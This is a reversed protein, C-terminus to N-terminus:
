GNRALVLAVQAAVDCPREDVDFWGYRLPHEGRVVAANDRRMDRFRAAYRHMPWRSARDRRIRLLRRRQIR